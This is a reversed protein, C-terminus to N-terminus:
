RDTPRHRADGIRDCPLRTPAQGAAARRAADFWAPPLHDLDAPEDIDALPALEAWRLGAARLAERTRAMVAPTSWPVGAFCRADARRLGVLAYGGDFTPVFVADHASLAAAAERLVAAGLAPADTGILLAHTRMALVRAFARHMRQGLDGDGQATLAVRGRAALRVFAPHSAEPAACVEVPGIRAALAQAVAHRLMRGALAAAGAPGLAPALRTKALGPVPAKAFVVVPVDDDPDVDGAHV